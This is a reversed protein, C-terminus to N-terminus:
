HLDQKEIPRTFVFYEISAEHHGFSYASVRRHSSMVCANHTMVCNHEEEEKEKKEQFLQGRYSPSAALSNVWRASPVNQKQNLRNTVHQLRFYSFKARGTLEPLRNVVTRGWLPAQQSSSLLPQDRWLVIFAVVVVIHGLLLVGRGPRGIWCLQEWSKRAKYAPITKWTVTTHLLQDEWIWAVMM